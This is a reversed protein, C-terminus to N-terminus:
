SQVVNYISEWYKYTKIDVCYKKLESDIIFVHTLKKGMYGKSVVVLSRNEIIEWDDGVLKVLPFVSDDDLAEPRRDSWYIEANELGYSQVEEIDIILYRLDRADEHKYFGKESCIAVLALSEQM